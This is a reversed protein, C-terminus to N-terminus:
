LIESNEIIDAIASFPVLRDNLNALCIGDETSPNCFELGAWGVVIQPLVGWSDTDGYFYGGHADIAWERGTEKAHLDCLVGLCCFGNGNRLNYRTQQYDGSRLAAVWRAKIEPNM